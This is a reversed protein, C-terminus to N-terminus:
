SIRRNAKAPKIKGCEYHCIDIILEATEEVM